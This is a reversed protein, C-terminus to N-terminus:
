MSTIEDDHEFVKYDKVTIHDYNMKNKLKEAIIVPYQKLLFDTDTHSLIETVEVTYTITHSKKM